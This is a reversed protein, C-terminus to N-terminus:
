CLVTKLRGLVGRPLQGVQYKSQLEALRQRRLEELEADGM